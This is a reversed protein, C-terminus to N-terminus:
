SKIKYSDKVIEKASVRVAELLAENLYYPTITKFSDKFCLWDSKLLVDESLKNNSDLYAQKWLEETWSYLLMGIEGGPEPAQRLCPETINLESFCENDPYTGMELTTKIPFYFSIPDSVKRFVCEYPNVHEDITWFLEERGTASVIIAHGAQDGVGIVLYNAM